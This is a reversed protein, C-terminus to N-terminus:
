GQIAPSPPPPPFSFMALVTGILQALGSVDPSSLLALTAQSQSPGTGIRETKHSKLEYHVFCFGVCMCVQEMCMCICVHVPVHICLVVLM